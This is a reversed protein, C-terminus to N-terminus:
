KLWKHAINQIELLITQYHQRLGDITEKDMEAINVGTKEQMKEVFIKLEDFAQRQDFSMRFRLEGKRIGLASYTIWVQIDDDAFFDYLMELVFAIIGALGAFRFLITRMAFLDFAKQIGNGALRTAIKESVPIIKRDIFTKVWAYRHSLCALSFASASSGYGLVALSGFFLSLTNGLEWDRSINKIMQGAFLFSVMGTFVGFVVKSYVFVSARGRLVRNAYATFDAAAAILASTAISKEMLIDVDDAFLNPNKDMVYQWNYVELAGVLFALRASRLHLKERTMEKMTTGEFIKFTINLTKKFVHDIEIMQNVFRKDIREIVTNLNDRLQQILKKVEASYASSILRLGGGADVGPYTNAKFSEWAKFLQYKCHAYLTSTQWIVGSLALSAAEAIMAGLSYLGAGIPKCRKILQDHIKLIPGPFLGPSQYNTLLWQLKLTKGYSTNLTFNRRRAKKQLEQLEFIYEYILTAQRFLTTVYSLGKIELRQLLVDNYETESNDSVIDSINELVKLTTNLDGFLARWGLHILHTKRLTIYAHSDFDINKLNDLNFMKQNFQQGTECNELGHTSREYVMRLHFANLNISKLQEFQNEDIEKQELAQKLEQDILAQYKKWIESDDEIEIRDEYGLDNITMLYHSKELWTILQKARENAIRDIENNVQKFLIDFDKTDLRQTYKELAKDVKQDFETKLQKQKSEYENVLDQYVNHLALATAKTEEHTADSRFTSHQVFKAYISNPSYDKLASVGINLRQSKRYKENTDSDYKLYHMFKEYYLHGFPKGYFYDKVLVIFSKVMPYFQRKMPAKLSNKDINLMIALQDLNPTYSIVGKYRREYESNIVQKQYDCDDTDLGKDLALYFDDKYAVINFDKRAVDSEVYARVRTMLEKVDCEMEAEKKFQGLHGYIDNYYENLDQAVGLADEIALLMPAGHEASYNQMNKHLTTLNQQHQELLLSKTDTGQAVMFSQTKFPTWPQHTSNLKLKDKNFIYKIKKVVKASTGIPNLRDQYEVGKTVEKYFLAKKKRDEESKVDISNYIENGLQNDPLLDLRKSIFDFDYDLVQKLFDETAEIASTHRKQALWAQIDIKQMRPEPENTCEMLMEDTWPFESYAIYVEEHLSAYPITIFTVIDPNKTLNPCQFFDEVNPNDVQYRSFLKLLRAEEDIKYIKWFRDLDHVTIDGNVPKMYPLYVYLFGERLRRIHYQYDDNLPVDTVGELNAWSPKYRNTYTPIATYRVPYIALGDKQCGCNKIKETTSM